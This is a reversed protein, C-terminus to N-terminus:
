RADSPLLDDYAAPDDVTADSFRIRLIDEVETLPSGDDHLAGVPADFAGQALVTDRMWGAFEARFLPKVTLTFSASTSAGDADTVTMTVDTAGSRGPAPLLFLTRDAGEGSVEVNGQPLLMADAASISVVLASPDTEADGVVVKIPGALGDEDVEQDPVVSVSPVSNQPAVPVDMPDGATNSGGGGGCGAAALAVVSWLVTMLAYSNKM